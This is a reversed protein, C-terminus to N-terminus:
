KKQFSGLHTDGFATPHKLGYGLARDVGIHALWILGIALAPPTAFTVGGACLALPGITSHLANYAAAGFRPGGLYAAFTLDPALFLLAFLGIGFGGHFYAATAAAFLALGELRLIAVVGGKFSREPARATWSIAASM